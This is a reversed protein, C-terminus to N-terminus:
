AGLTPLFSRPERADLACWAGLWGALRSAAGRGLQGLHCLAGQTSPVAALARARKTVTWPSSVPAFCIDAVAYRRQKTNM